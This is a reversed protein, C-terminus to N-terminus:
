IALAFEHEFRRPFNADMMKVKTIHSKLKCLSLEKCVAQAGLSQISWDCSIQIKYAPFVTQELFCQLQALKRVPSATSYERFHM